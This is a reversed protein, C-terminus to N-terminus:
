GTRSSRLLGNPIRMSSEKVTELHQEYGAKPGELQAQQPNAGSLSLRDEAGHAVLQVPEGGSGHGDGAHVPRRKRGPQAYGAKICRFDAILVGMAGVAQKAVDWVWPQEMLSPEPIAEAEPLPIFSSNIINVTDGRQVM